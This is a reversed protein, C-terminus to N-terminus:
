THYLVYMEQPPSSAVEESDIIHRLTSYILLFCLDPIYIRLVINDM